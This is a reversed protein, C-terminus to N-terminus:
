CSCDKLWGAVNRHRGLGVLDFADQNSSFLSALFSGTPSAGAVGMQGLASNIAVPSIVPGFVIEHQKWVCSAQMGDGGWFAAEIYAAKSFPSVMELLWSPCNFEFDESPKTTDGDTLFLFDQDLPILSLSTALTVFPWKHESCIQEQSQPIIVGCITYPM